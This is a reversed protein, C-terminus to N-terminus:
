QTRPANFFYRELSSYGIWSFLNPRTDLSERNMFVLFLPLEPYLREQGELDPRVHIFRLAQAQYYSYVVPGQGVSSFEVYDPAGLAAVMDAYVLGRLPSYPLNTVSRLHIPNIELAVSALVGYADRRVAVAVGEGNLLVGNNTISPSLALDRTLPHQRLIMLAENYPTVGPRIGFLCPTACPSGDANRFMWVAAPRTDLRRPLGFTVTLILTIGTVLLLVAAFFRSV